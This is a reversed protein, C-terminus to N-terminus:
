NKQLHESSGLDMLLIKEIYYDRGNHKIAELRALEIQASVETFHANEFFGYGVYEDSFLIVWIYVVNGM